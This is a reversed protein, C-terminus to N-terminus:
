QDAGDILNSAGANWRHRVAPDPRYSVVCTLPVALYHGTGIAADVWPTDAGIPFLRRPHLAM